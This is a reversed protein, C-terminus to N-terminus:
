RVGRDARLWELTAALGDVYSVRPEWGLVERLRRNSFDQDRGLVHVAQRSLLAPMSLGTTARLGRYGRELASGIAHAVPYPLNWSPPPSELGAALDGLFRRWTVDLGDTVNFAAGSAGPHRLALLAADVLNEVFVLGAIARGGGILIMRRARIAAAMQGVVEESFPGYVTAPRLIVVDLGRARAVLRVEAEAARKTEAYWNSFHTPVYDEKVGEAGPYGYVDTTSLHVFRGVSAASAAEVLNRTGTVNVRKIETITAWDSVLAACHVVFRCGALARALSDADTIDGTVLDLGLGELRARRRADSTRRVLCRVRYGAATMRRAVHSGIFGTAGTILCLEREASGGEARPDRGGASM